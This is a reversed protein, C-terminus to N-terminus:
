GHRHCAASRADGLARLPPTAARCLDHVHPCRPAFACGTPLNALDPPQG